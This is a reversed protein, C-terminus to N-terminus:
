AHIVSSMFIVDLVTNKSILGAIKYKRSSNSVASASNSRLMRLKHVGTPIRGNSDVQPFEGFYRNEIKAYAHHPLFATSAVTARLQFYEAVTHVIQDQLAESACAFLVALSNCLNRNTPSSLMRPVKRIGVESTQISFDSLPFAIDAWHDFLQKGCLKEVEDSVLEGFRKAGESGLVDIMQFSYRSKGAISLTIVQHVREHINAPTPNARARHKPFFTRIEELEEEVGRLVNERFETQESCYRYVGRSGNSRIEEVVLIDEFGGILRLDERNADTAWILSSDSVMSYYESPLVDIRFKNGDLAFPCFQISLWNWVHELEDPEQVWTTKRTEPNYHRLLFSTPTFTTFELDKKSMTRSQGAFSKGSVIGSIVLNPYDSFFVKKVTSEIMALLEMETEPLEEISAQFFASNAVCELAAAHINFNKSSQGISFVGGSYIESGRGYFNWQSGRNHLFIKKITLARHGTCFYINDDNANYFVSVTAGEIPLEVMPRHYEDKVLDDMVQIDNVVNVWSMGANLIEETELDIVMGKQRFNGVPPYMNGYVPQKSYDQSYQIGVLRPIKEGNADVVCERLIRERQMELQVLENEKEDCVGFKMDSVEEESRARIVKYVFDDYEVVYENNRLINLVISKILSHVHSGLVNEHKANIFVTSSTNVVSM